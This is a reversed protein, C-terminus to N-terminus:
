VGMMKITHKALDVAGQSDFKDFVIQQNSEGDDDNAWSFSTNAIGMDPIQFFVKVSPDGDDNADMMVLVQGVDSDKYLKAFDSM